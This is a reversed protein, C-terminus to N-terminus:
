HEPSRDITRLTMFLTGAILVLAAVHMSAVVAIQWGSRAMGPGEKQALQVLPAYSVVFVVASIALFVVAPNSALRWCLLAVITAAIGVLITSTAPAPTRLPDFDEPVDLGTLGIFQIITNAIAAVVTAALGRVAITKNAASLAGGQTASPSTTASM